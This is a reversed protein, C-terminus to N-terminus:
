KEYNEGKKKNIRISVSNAHADLKEIGSIVDVIEELNQLGKQTLYQVESSKQFTEISVASTMKSWMGTPLIHNTGSAYDGVAVPAYSGLFISGANKIKPLISIPDSVLIELHEPSYENTLDIAAEWNKVVVACSYKSLSKKIIEKRKLYKIQRKIEKKTEQALKQSYTILVGAADPAHEARALIDAACFAPNAFEDALIIAESPGALMDISVKGFVLLKATQTYISGPGVIKVVPKITETGYAMAAICAIGGVRYIEDVGALDAAILMEPYQGTPPFCAVIRPVGAAKATVGLIQMVTPLPVQGAPVTIGVSEIPTIKYGVQVGPIFSKLVTEEKKRSLANQRSITIQRKLIDIVKQDVEKYANRIDKKTVKLDKLKFNKNDFKRIYNLLGQDGDKKVVEIWGSVYDRISSIDLNARNMIKEKTKNDTKDWVYINLM